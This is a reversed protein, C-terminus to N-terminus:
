RLNSTMRNLLTRTRERPTQRFDAFGDTQILAHPGWAGSENYSYGDDSKMQNLQSWCSRSDLRCTSLLRSCRSNMRSDRSEIM